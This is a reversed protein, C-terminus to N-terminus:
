PLLHLFNFRNNLFSAFSNEGRRDTQGGTAGRGSATRTTSTVPIGNMREDGNFLPKRPIREYRRVM